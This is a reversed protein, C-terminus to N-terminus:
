QTWQHLAAHLSRIFASALTLKTHWHHTQSSRIMPQGESSFCCWLGWRLLTELSNVCGSSDARTHTLSPSTRNWQPRCFVSWSASLFHTGAAEQKHTHTMTEARPHCVPSGTESRSTMVMVSKFASCRFRTMIVVCVVSQGALWLVHWHSRVPEPSPIAM